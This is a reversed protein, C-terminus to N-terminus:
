PHGCRQLQLPLTRPHQHGDESVLDARVGGPVAGGAQEAEEEQSVRRKVFLNLCIYMLCTELRSLRVNHSVGNTQRPLCTPFIM